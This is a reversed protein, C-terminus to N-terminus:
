RGRYLALVVGVALGVLVSSTFLTAVFSSVVPDM